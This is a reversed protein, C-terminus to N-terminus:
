IIILSSIYRQITLPLQSIYHVALIQGIFLESLDICFTKPNSSMNRTYRILFTFNKSNPVDLHIRPLITESNQARRLIGKLDWTYLKTKILLLPWSFTPARLSATVNDPVNIHSVVVM